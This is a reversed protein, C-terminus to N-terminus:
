FEKGILRDLSYHGGGRFLIALCLVFLTLPYNTPAGKMLWAWGLTQPVVFTVFFLEIAFLLAVPRTLLGLALMAGGALELVSLGMAWEPTAPLGWPPLFKGGAVGPSGLLKQAGHPILIAATALRLLTYGWPELPRYLRALSPTYSKPASRDIGTLAVEEPMRTHELM